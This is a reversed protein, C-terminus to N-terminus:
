KRGRCSSRPIIEVQPSWEVGCGGPQAARSNGESVDPRGQQQSMLADCVSIRHWQGEGILGLREREKLTLKRWGLRRSLAYLERSARRHLAARTEGVNISFFMALNEVDDWGLHSFWRRWHWTIVRAPANPHPDHMLRPYIGSWDGIIIKTWDEQRGTKKGARAYELIEMDAKVLARAHCERMWRLSIRDRVAGDYRGTKQSIEIVPNPYLESQGEDVLIDVHRAPVGRITYRRCRTFKTIWVYDQTSELYDLLGKAHEQSVLYRKIVKCGKRSM